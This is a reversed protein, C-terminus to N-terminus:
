PDQLQDTKLHVDLQPFAIEVNADRLKQDIRMHLDHTVPLRRAAGSVFCRVEFILASDGFQLFYVNHAPEDLIEEHAAVVDNICQLTLETDSGYAVGISFHLRTVDSSLTWNILSDSIFMKNPVVIEKNDWDAITTTRMSINTVTGSQDGITVTDGIRLPREFLIVLGGVFNAVIEQLGFGLGVGIAAVLWQIKSWSIGIANFSIIVGVVIILYRTLTVTAYRAGADTHMYKQTAMEVLGPLNRASAFTILLIFIAMILNLLSVTEITKEGNVTQVGSWLATNELVGFIPGANDWVMLTLSILLITCGIRVLSLAQSQISNVEAIKAEASDSASEQSESATQNSNELKAANERQQKLQTFLMQKRTVLLWRFLLAYALLTVLAACLTLILDQAIIISTYHYGIASAIALVVLSLYCFVFGTAFLQFRWGHQKSEPTLSVVINRVRRFQWAIILSLFIFLLRGITDDVRQDSFASSFEAFGLIVPITYLSQTIVSNLATAMSAPMKFHLVAVGSPHLLRRIFDLIFWSFAFRGLASSIAVEISGNYHSAAIIFSILVLLLPLRLALLFIAALSELTFRISDSALRHILTNHSQVRAYLRGKFATIWLLIVIGAILAVIRNTPANDITDALSNSGLITPLAKITQTLDIFWQMSIPQNTAIWLLQEDIRDLIEDTKAVLKTRTLSLSILESIESNLGELIKKYLDRRQTGILNLAIKLDDNLLEQKADTLLKELSLQEDNIQLQLRRAQTLQSNFASGDYHNKTISVVTARQKLLLEGVYSDDNALSLQENILQHAQSIKQFDADIQQRQEILSDIDEYIRNLLVTLEKNKSVVLKLYDNNTVLSDLQRSNDEAISQATQKNESNRQALIHNNISQYLALENNLQERKTRALSMRNDFSTLESELKELNAARLKIRVIVSLYDLHSPVQDAAAFQNLQQNLAELQSQTSLYEPEILNQRAQLSAIQANTSNLESQLTSLKATLDSSKELYPQALQEISSNQQLKTIDDLKSQIDALLQPYNESIEAYQKAQERLTKTATIHTNAQQLLASLQDTETGDPADALGAIQTDVIENLEDDSPLGSQAMVANCATMLFVFIFLAFQRM